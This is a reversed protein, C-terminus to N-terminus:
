DNAMGRKRFSQAEEQYNQLNSTRTSNGISSNLDIFLRKECEIIYNRGEELTVVAMSPIYGVFKQNDEKLNIFYLQCNSKHRSPIDEIAECKQFLFEKKLNYHILERSTEGMADTIDPLLYGRYYKHLFYTVNDIVKITTEIMKGNNKKCFEIERALHNVSPYVIRGRRVQGNFTIKKM